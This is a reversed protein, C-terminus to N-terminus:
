VNRLLWTSIVPPSLSREGAESAKGSRRLQLMVLHYIYSTLADRLRCKAPLEHPAEDNNLLMELVTM